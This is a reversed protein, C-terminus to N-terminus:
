AFCLPSVVVQLFMCYFETAITRHAPIISAGHVELHRGRTSTSTCHPIIKLTLGSGSLCAAWIKKKEQPLLHDRSDNLDKEMRQARKGDTAALGRGKICASDKRVRLNHSARQLSAILEVADCLIPAVEGLGNGM